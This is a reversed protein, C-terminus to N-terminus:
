TEPNRFLTPLTALAYMGILECIEAGNFCGMTVDFLRPKNVWDNDPGLLLSRRAHLIIKKEENSIKTINSAFNLPNLPLQESISPYFKCVNCSM